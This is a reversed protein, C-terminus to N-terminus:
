KKMFLYFDDRRNMKRLDESLNPYSPDKKGLPVVEIRKSDIGKSIIYNRAAEARRLSLKDNYPDSALDCTHGIVFLVANPYKNMLTVKRNLIEISEPRLDYKDLDFYIPELLWKEDQPHPNGADAIGGYYPSVEIEGDPYQGNPYYVPQIIPNIIITDGPHRDEMKKLYDLLEKLVTTDNLMSESSIKREDILREKLKGIKIRIGVNAKIALPHIASTQNSNVVGIHNIFDGLNGDQPTKGEMLTLLPNDQKKINLLGYEASVGLTLDVRRSLGILFGAEGVISLGPKLYNKGSWAKEESIGYGYYEMPPSSIPYDGWIIGWQPYDAIVQLKGAVKEYRSTLPLQLKFGAALYFGHMEKKGWKYQYRLELPIDLYHTTQKEVRDWFIATINCLTDEKDLVSPLYFSRNPFYSKTKFVSWDLSLSLGLYENFYYQVGLGAGYGWSSKGRPNIGFLSKSGDLDYKDLDYLFKTAAANGSLSLHLGKEQAFMTVSTFVIGIILIIKKMKKIKKNYLRPKGGDRRNM